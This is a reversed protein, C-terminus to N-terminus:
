LDVILDAIGARKWFMVEFSPMNEMVPGVGWMYREVGWPNGEPQNRM